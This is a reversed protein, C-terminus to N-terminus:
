QLVAGFTGNNLQSIGDDIAKLIDIIERGQEGGPGGPVESLPDSAQLYGRPRLMARRMGQLEAVQTGALETKMWAPAAELEARMGGITGLVGAYEAEGRGIAGAVSVRTAFGIRTLKKEEEQKFLLIRREAQAREWENRWQETDRIVMLKRRTMDDFSQLEAEHSKKAVTLAAVESASRAASSDAARRKFEDSFELEQKAALARKEFYDQAALRDKMVQDTVGAGRQTQAMQLTLREAEHGKTMAQYGQGWYTANTQEQSLRSLGAGFAPGMQQAWLRERERQEMLPRLQRLINIEGGGGKIAQGGAEYMRANWTETIAGLEDGQARLLDAKLRRGSRVLDQALNRRAEEEAVNREIAASAGSYQNAFAVVGGFIPLGEGAHIMNATWRDRNMPDESRYLKRNEYSFVNGGIRMAQSAVYGETAMRLGAGMQQWLSKQQEGSIIGMSRAMETARTHASEREAKGVIRNYERAVQREDFTMEPKIQIKRPDRGMREVKGMAANLESDDVRFPVVIGGSSRIEEAM